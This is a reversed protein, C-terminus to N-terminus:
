VKLLVVGAILFTAGALKTLNAPSQQVGLLGFHDLTLSCVMQGVVILALTTVAGLRPITLIAISVFAAGFMGGTLATWPPTGDLSESLRPGPALMAVTVMAILGVLYSCSGAWWPSGIHARLNANLVQQIAVSVGALVALAYSTTLPSMPM